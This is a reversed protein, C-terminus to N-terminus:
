WYSCNLRFNFNINTYTAAVLFWGIYLSFVQCMMGYVKYYIYIVNYPLTKTTNDHHGVAM